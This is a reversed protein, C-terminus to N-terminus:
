SQTHCLEQLIPTSLPVCGHFKNLVKKCFGFGTCLRYCLIKPVQIRNPRSIRSKFMEAYAWGAILDIGRISLWRHFENRTHETHSSIWEAFIHEKYALHAIFDNGRISMTGYYRKWTHEAHAIHMSYNEFIVWFYRNFQVNQSYIILIKFFRKPVWSIPGFYFNQSFFRKPYSVFFIQNRTHETVAFINSCLFETLFRLFLISIKEFISWPCILNQNIYFFDFNNWAQTGKVKSNQMASIPHPKVCSEYRWTRGLNLFIGSCGPPVAKKRQAVAVVFVLLGKAYYKLGEYVFIGLFICIHSFLYIFLLIHYIEHCQGKLWSLQSAPLTSWTHHAIIRPSSHPGLCGTLAVWEFTPCCWLLLAGGAVVVDLKLYWYSFCSTSDRSFNSNFNLFILLVFNRKNKGALNLYLSVGEENNECKWVNIFFFIM